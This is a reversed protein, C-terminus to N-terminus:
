GEFDKVYSAWKDDVLDFTEPCMEKLLARNLKPYVEPGGENPLKRTADIIIKSGLERNAASPDLRMGRTGDVILSSPGPQWRAGVAAMVEDFNYIDIDSDVVITVKAINLNGAIQMGAAMGDGPMRKEIGAIVYGTAHTPTHVGLLNYITRKLNLFLTAEVPATLYGRTVGNSSNLVWPKERHTICAINMYVNQEKKLGLYGYMEGFPGEEEMDMPIEGEIVMEAHAPVVIDSTECKVVEIPRGMFGGAFELEDMGPPAVKSSSMGWTIPDAGVVIAAKISKQGARRSNMIIVWANQGPEPNVGIKKPGKIQCRYTGVNRGFKPDQIITSGMNLYRGGDAPNSMIFAYQTIDVDDGTHVIEKCPAKDREIEVPPIRKWTGGPTALAKVKEMAAKYMARHDDTIEEVGFGLAETDWGGYPNGILPGEIWKGDQKVREVLFTPASYYGYKDILKYTFATTEYKDQDMEPIRIVRGRAELAAIYDRFSLFPGTMPANPRSADPRIDEAVSM